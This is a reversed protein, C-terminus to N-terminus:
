KNLIKYKKIVGSPAVSQLFLIPCDVNDLRLENRGENLFVVNNLLVRGLVDTVVLRYSGSENVDILLTGDIMLVGDSRLLLQEVDTEKSVFKVEPSYSEVDQAKISFRGESVLTAPVNWVYSTETKLSALKQEEPLLAFHNVNICGASDIYLRFKDSSVTRFSAKYDPGVSLGSDVSAWNKEVYDYYQIKYSLIPGCGDYSTEDVIAGSVPVVYELDYELWENMNTQAGWRNSKDPNLAYTNKWRFLSDETTWESSSLVTAVKATPCWYFDISDPTKKNYTWEIESLGGNEWVVPASPNIWVPAPVRSPALAVTTISMPPLVIDSTSSYSSITKSWINQDPVTQVITGTEPVEGKFSLTTSHRVSGKNIIVVSIDEGDPSKFAVSVIDRNNASIGICIWGKKVFKSFHRLGHYEPQVSFGNPYSWTSDPKDVNVCGTGDGGWLLSWHFYATIRNFNFGNAITWAMHVPDYISKERLSSNESMFMPKDSYDRALGQMSEVYDDPHSYRDNGNVGSHYYHFCYASLISKDLKDTYKQSQNWGIGLVDPGTMKPRNALDGLMYDVAGLASAYSAVGDSEEPNLIMSEYTADMDPENQISVYDPFVGYAQYRELSKRWWDGYQWYLFKGDDGKKLTGKIWNDTGTLKDNAKLSPPATWCAMIVLIDDGMRQKAERVLEAQSSLDANLDQAWNGIRIASTGLGEFITDYIAQKNPHKTFYEEYFVLNGGLGQVTQYNQTPDVSVAVDGAKAILSLSVFFAVLCCTIIQKTRKM